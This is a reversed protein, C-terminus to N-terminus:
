RIDGTSRALAFFLLHYAFFTNMIISLFKEGSTVSVLPPSSRLSTGVVALAICVASTEVDLGVQLLVL